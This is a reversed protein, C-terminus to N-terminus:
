VPLMQVEIDANSTVVAITHGGSGLIGRLETRSSEQASVPVNTLLVQGNSTSLSLDANLNPVLQVLVRANSTLLSVDRDVSLIDATIRGNSTEAFTITSVNQLIIEANSTSASVIGEIGHLEVRGNSTRATIDGRFTDVTIPGNSTALSATGGADRITIGGNSSEITRVSVGRPITIQYDVSVRAPPIPHITELHLIDDTTVRIQVRDLEPTGYLTSLTANVQAVDETGTTIEVNGNLNHVDLLTGPSVNYTGRFERTTIGTLPPSVCGAGLVMGIAMCCICIIASIRSIM